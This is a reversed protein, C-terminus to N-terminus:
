LVSTKLWCRSWRVEGQPVLLPLIALHNNLIIKM